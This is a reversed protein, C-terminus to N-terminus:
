EFLEATNQFISVLQPSIHFRKANTEISHLINGDNHRLTAAKWDCFLEMIDVLTMGEIGAPFHEPHHRNHAYHHDLAPKMEELCQKYEEGNYTMAALKPTHAAFVELEPSETKSKDHKEGRELLMTSIVRLFRRVHEIHKYTEANAELEEIHKQTEANTALEEPTM